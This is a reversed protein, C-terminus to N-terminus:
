CHYASAPPDTTPLQVKRRSLQALTGSHSSQQQSPNDGRTEGSSGSFVSIELMQEKFVTIEELFGSGQPIQVQTLSFSPMQMLGDDKRKEMRGDMWGRDDM